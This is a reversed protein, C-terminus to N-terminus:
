APVPAFFDCSFTVNFVWMSALFMNPDLLQEYRAIKNELNNVTRRLRAIMEDKGTSKLQLEKNEYRLRVIMEDKETSKLQLEKNEYRLRVIMEDKETSELQLEKNEHVLEM